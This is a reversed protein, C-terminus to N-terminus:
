QEPASDLQERLLQRGLTYVLQESLLQFAMKQHCRRSEPGNCQGMKHAVIKEDQKEKHNRERKRVNNRKRM